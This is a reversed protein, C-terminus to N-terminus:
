TFTFIAFAELAAYHNANHLCPTLESYLLPLMYTLTM